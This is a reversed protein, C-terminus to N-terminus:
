PELPRYQDQLWTSVLFQLCEDPWRLLDAQGSSEALLRPRVVRLNQMRCHLPCTLRNNWHQHTKCPHAAEDPRLRHHHRRQKRGEQGLLECQAPPESAMPVILETAPLKLQLYDTPEELCSRVPERSHRSNQGFWHPRRYHELFDPALALM